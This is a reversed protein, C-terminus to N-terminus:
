ADPAVSEFRDYDRLAGIGVWVVFAAFPLWLWSSGERVDLVLDIALALFWIMDFLFLGRSVWVLRLLWLVLAISGLLFGIADFPLERTPLALLMYLVGIPLTWSLRRKLAAKLDRAVLPGRWKEFAALFDTSTELSLRKPIVVHLVARGMHRQIWTTEPAESRPLDFSGSGDIERLAMADHELSVRWM